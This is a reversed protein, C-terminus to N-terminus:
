NDSEDNVRELFNINVLISPLAHRPLACANEGLFIQQTIYIARPHM